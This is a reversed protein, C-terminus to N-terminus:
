MLPLVRCNPSPQQKFSDIPKLFFLPLPMGSLMRGGASVLWGHVFRMLGSILVVQLTRRVDHMSLEKWLVGCPM